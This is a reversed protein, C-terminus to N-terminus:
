GFHHHHLTLRGDPQHLLRRRARRRRGGRPAGMRVKLRRSCSLRGRVAGRCCALSAVDAVQLPASAPASPLPVALARPGRWARGAVRGRKRRATWDVPDRSQPRPVVPEGGQGAVLGRSSAAAADPPGRRRSRGRPRRGGHAGGHFSCGHAGCLAIILRGEEYKEDHKMTEGRHRNVYGPAPVFAAAPSFLLLSPPSSAPEAPAGGGGGPGGRQFGPTAPLGPWDESRRARRSSRPGDLRRAASVPAARSVLCPRASSRQDDVEPVGLAPLSALLCFDAKVGPRPWYLFLHARSERPPSQATPLPDRMGPGDGHEGPRVRRHVAQELNRESQSRRGPSARSPRLEGQDAGHWRSHRRSCCRERRHRAVFRGDLGGTSCTCTPGDFCRLNVAATGEGGRSRPRVHRPWSRPATAVAAPTSWPTRKRTRAWPPPRCPVGTGGANIGVPQAGQPPLRLCELDAPVAAPRDRCRAHVVPWRRIAAEPPLALQSPAWSTGGLGGAASSPSATPSIFM